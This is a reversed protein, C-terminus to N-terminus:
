NGIGWSEQRSKLPCRYLDCPAPLLIHESSIHICAHVRAQLSVRQTQTLHCFLRFSASPHCELVRPTIKNCLNALFTHLCFYICGKLRIHVSVWRCSLIKSIQNRNLQMKYAWFTKPFFLANKVNMVSGWMTKGHYLCSLILHGNFGWLGCIDM